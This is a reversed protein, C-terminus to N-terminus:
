NKLVPQYDLSTINEDKEEEEYSFRETESSNIYYPNTNQFGDRIGVKAYDGQMNPNQNRKLTATAGVNQESLM